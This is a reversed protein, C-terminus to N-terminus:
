RCTLVVLHHGLLEAAPAVAVRCGSPLQPISRLTRPNEPAQLQPTTHQPPPPRHRIAPDIRMAPFRWRWSRSRWGLAWGVVAKSGFAAVLVEPLSAVAVAAPGAPNPIVEALVAMVQRDMTAASTHSGRPPAPGRPPRPRRPAPGGPRRGRRHCRRWCCPWRTSLAVSWWSNRASRPWPRALWTWPEV